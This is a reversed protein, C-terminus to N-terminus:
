EVVAEPKVVEDCGRCYYLDGDWEILGTVGCESCESM